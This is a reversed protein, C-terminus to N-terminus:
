PIKSTRSEIIGEPCREGSRAATKTKAMIRAIAVPHWKVFM